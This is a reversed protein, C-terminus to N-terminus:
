LSVGITQDLLGRVHQQSEQLVCALEETLLRLSRNAHERDRLRLAGETELHALGVLVNVYEFPDGSDLAAQNADARAKWQAEPKDNWAQIQGLLDQAQELSILDRVVSQLNKELVTMTLEDRRFYLNVYCAAAHGSFSNDHISTIEGLGHQRHFVYEGKRINIPSL